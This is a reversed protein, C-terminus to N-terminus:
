DTGEVGSRAFHGGSTGTVQTPPQKSTIATNTNKIPVLRIELCAKVDAAEGGRERVCVCVCVRARARVCM